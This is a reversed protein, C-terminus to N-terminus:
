IAEAVGRFTLSVPQKKAIFFLPSHTQMIFTESDKSEATKFM